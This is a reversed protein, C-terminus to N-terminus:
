ADFKSTENIEASINQLFMLSFKLIQLKCRLHNFDNFTM